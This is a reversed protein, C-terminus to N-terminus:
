SLLQTSALDGSLLPSTLGTMEEAACYNSCNVASGARRVLLNVHGQGRNCSFAVTFCKHNSCLYLFPLYDVSLRQRTRGNKVFQRVTKTACYLWTSM